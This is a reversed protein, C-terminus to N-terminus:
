HAAQPPRAALRASEARAAAAQKRDGATTWFRAALDYAGATPSIRVLDAIAAAAEEERGEGHLLTALAARARTNSPFAKLEAAFEAEAEPARQLRVLTDAFYYHLDLIPRSRGAQEEAAAQEFLPLAEAFGGQDYALRGDVYLPMPRTPEAAKAAAAEDRATDADRRGLAIRALWEHATSHTLTDKEAALAAAQEAHRRADDFKRLRALAIAARIHASPNEPEIAIVHSAADAAIEYRESDFALLEIQRWVDAIGPNDHVIAQLRGIADPWKRVFALQMAERYTTLVAYTDKPDAPESQDGDLGGSDISGVDGIAAFRARDDETVPGPLPLPSKYRELAARMTQLVSAAAPDSVLNHTEATDRTLDYLEERETRIYRHAGDTLTTLERWGFHYRGFLSEGYVMRPAIHGSGDLLPKLSTGRLGGPDPAKALDLLTPALDVHQVVDAVRRKAGDGAAQKVILPVRLAEEYVFLGHTPEGHNGLGTGHAATLVVTSRDYLQHAKLYKVLKGVVADAEMVSADYAEIPDGDTRGEGSRTTTFQLFLFSRANGFSDLWQEAARESDAADRKLEGLAEEPAAPAMKDDFVNFGQGIGTEKRLAFTSVFAATAYGRDRLLRSLLKEGDKVVFGVDDRVGTDLPLRGSLLSAHSPLTEPSHAYAREFVIGDAALADMTPTKIRSYGYAPLHDPRLGDVSILIIPGNVPSSARAYRWGGAAALAAFLAM